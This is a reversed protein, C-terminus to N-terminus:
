LKKLEVRRNKARGEETTNPAIPETAGKGSPALRQKSINYKTVLKTATAFARAQSLKQNYEASGVNDTHGVVQLRMDPNRALIDAIANLTPASEPKVDAKNFDFYIGYLDVSGRTKLSQEIWSFDEDFMSMDVRKPWNIILYVMTEGPEFIASKIPGYEPKRAKYPVPEAYTRSIVGYNIRTGDPREKYLLAVESSKKKTNGVDPCISLAECEKDFHLISKGASQFGDASLMQSYASVVENSNYANAPLKYVVFLFTGSLEATYPRGDTTQSVHFLGNLTANPELYQLVLEAGRLKKVPAPIEMMTGGGAMASSPSSPLATSATGAEQAYSPTALLVLLLTGYLWGISTRM